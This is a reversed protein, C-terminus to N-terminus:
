RMKPMGVLSSKNELLKDYKRAKQEESKKDKQFVSWFRLTEDESASCITSGDPSGTLHLVREEHGYLEVIKKGAPYSWISLQNMKYGHSSIFEDYDKSFLISCVQSNTKISSTENGTIANWIKITRDATGGGTALVNSHRPNWAVAKVCALHSTLNHIPKANNLESINRVDWICALDDNSGTALYSGTSNWTLGPIASKHQKHLFSGVHHEKKRVDHNHISGDNASSTLIHNCWDLANIKNEHSSMKRLKKGTLIDYIYIDSTSTGLALTSQSSNNKIFKVASIYQNASENCVNTLELQETTGSEAKWLYLDATLALSLVNQEASWDLPNSYYDPRLGPADLVFKPELPIHRNVKARRKSKASSSTSFIANSKKSIDSKPAQAGFNIIRPALNESVESNESNGDYSNERSNFGSNIKISGSSIKDVLLEVKLKNEYGNNARYNALDTNLKDRPPIHRDTDRGPSIKNQSNTPLRSPSIKHANSQLNGLSSNGLSNNIAQIFEVSVEGKSAKRLETLKNRKAYRPQMTKTSIVLKSFDGNM